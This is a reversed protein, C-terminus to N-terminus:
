GPQGNTAEKQKIFPCDPGVWVPPQVEGHISLWMRGTFLAHLRDKLSMQWCSIIQGDGRFAPLSGCEEDTMSVPKTFTINQQKFKIAKM